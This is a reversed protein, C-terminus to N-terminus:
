KARSVSGPRWSMLKRGRGADGGGTVRVKVVGGWDVLAANVTGGDRRLCM